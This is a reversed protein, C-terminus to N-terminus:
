LRSDKDCIKPRFFISEKHKPPKLYFTKHVDQIDEEKGVRWDRTGVQLGKSQWPNKPLPLDPALKCLFCIERVFAPPLCLQAM